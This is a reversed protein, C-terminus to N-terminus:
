RPEDPRVLRLPPYHAGGAPRGLGLRAKRRTANDELRLGGNIEALCARLFVRERQLEYLRERIADRVGFRHTVLLDSVTEVVDTIGWRHPPPLHQNLTATVKALAALYDNAEATMPHVEQSGM